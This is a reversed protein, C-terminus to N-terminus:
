IALITWSIVQNNFDRFYNTILTKGQVNQLNPNPQETFSEFSIGTAGQGEVKIGGTVRM